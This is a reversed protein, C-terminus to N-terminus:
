DRPEVTTSTKTTAAPVTFTINFKALSASVDRAKAILSRADALIRPVEAKAENYARTTQETVPMTAM